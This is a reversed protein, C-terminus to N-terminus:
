WLRSQYYRPIVKGRLAFIAKGQDLSEVASGCYRTRVARIPDEIEPELVSVLSSLLCGTRGHGGRCFVLVKEKKLYEIVEMVFARWNDAVGGVDDLHKTVVQTQPSFVLGSNFRRYAALDVVVSPSVLDVDEQTLRAAGAAYITFNGVSVAEGRHVGM